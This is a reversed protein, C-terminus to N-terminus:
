PAQTNEELNLICAFFNIEKDVVRSAKELHDAITIIMTKKIADAISLGYIYNLLDVLLQDWDSDFLGDNQILFTRIELTNGSSLETYIKSCLENNNTKQSILLENNIVFKQMENICKRLDPFYSKVLTALQKKQEQNTEVGEESLIYLCRKFAQKLTPRIDLSQCRSQLPASIKYRENATLIFRANGIYSEMMNRLAAQAAQSLYSTEDLIVVKIQGDFSKTQVFGSIKNRITDIGTEDSANIYIYDCKLIDLVIVQAMTTKGTGPPGVFLLNPIDKGFSNIIARNEDSICLDSLTKPRWKAWWVGDMDTM